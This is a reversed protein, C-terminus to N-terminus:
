PKGLPEDPSGRGCRILDFARPVLVVFALRDPVAEGVRRAFDGVAIGAVDRDVMIVTIMLVHRQHLREAGAGVAERNGPRANKGVSAARGIRLPEIEVIAEDVRQECGSHRGVDGEIVPVQRQGQLVTKASPLPALGGLREGIVGAKDGCLEAIAHTM